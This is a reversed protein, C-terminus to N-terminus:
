QSVSKYCMRRCYAAAQSAFGCDQSVAQLVSSLCIMGQATCHCHQRLQSCKQCHLTSGWVKIVEENHQKFLQKSKAPDQGFCGQLDGEWAIMDIMDFHPIWPVTWRQLLQAYWPLQKWAQLLLM